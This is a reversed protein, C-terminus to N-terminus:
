AASPDNLIDSPDSGVKSPDTFSIRDELDGEVTATEQPPQEKVCGPRPLNNQAELLPLSVFKSIEDFYLGDMTLDLVSISVPVDDLSTPPKYLRGDAAVFEQNVPIATSGLSAELLPKHIELGLRDYTEPTTYRNYQSSQFYALSNDNANTSGADM